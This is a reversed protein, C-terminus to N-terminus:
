ADRSELDPDRSEFDPDRSLEFDPDRSSLLDPDLIATRSMLGPDEILNALPLLPALRVMVNSISVTSFSPYEDAKVSESLQFFFSNDFYMHVTNLIRHLEKVAASHFAYYCRFHVRQLAFRFHNNNTQKLRHYGTVYTLHVPYSSNQLM